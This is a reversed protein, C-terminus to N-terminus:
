IVFNSAEDLRDQGRLGNMAMERSKKNVGGLREVERRSTRQKVGASDRWKRDLLARKL